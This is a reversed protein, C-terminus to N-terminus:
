LSFSLSLSLDTCNHLLVRLHVCHSLKTRVLQQGSAMSSTHAALHSLCCGGPVSQKHRVNQRLSTLDIATGDRCSAQQLIYLLWQGKM